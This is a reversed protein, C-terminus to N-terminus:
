RRRASSGRDAPQRPRRGRRAPPRRGRVRAARHAAAGDARRPRSATASSTASRSRRHARRRAPVVDYWDGGLSAGARGPLYRAALEIGPVEALEQPLLAGSCPRPSAPAARVARAHEIALAARDAALQLLDRDDATFDRPTLTGVHLVGIVRGEVLLPVGLLSRIGKERLIPNLIDAHDVDPISSRRPARRRHARRLRPRRPIRVGQEVEEEIGKAARARLVRGAQELLLIAATDAHSSTARHARLLEGCCSRRRAPLRARRRHRAARAELPARPARRARARRARARLAPRPRDRARRPRRRAPAPRPRRRHVDRPTLTGVHLVGIVRGEVLLPVGLLSRIGKERLIPNLIDAHDVDPITIPAASPPSAAPSAAASPSASARSSRRRSARRRARTCCTATARRAAPVGRHRRALIEAIRELLERLLDDEALHALAADTVRQLSRLLQLDVRETVRAARPGIPAHAGMNSPSPMSGRM